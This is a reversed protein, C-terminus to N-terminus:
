CLYNPNMYTTTHSWLENIKMASYIYWFKNSKRNISMQPTERNQVTVFVTEIFARYIHTKIYVYM